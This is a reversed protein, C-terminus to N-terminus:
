TFDIRWDPKNNKQGDKFYRGYRPKVRSEKIPNDRVIVGGKFYADKTYQKPIRPIIANLIRKCEIESKANITVKSNDNLTYIGEYNGKVYSPLSIKDSATGDWHPVSIPYMASKYKKQGKDDVGNEEACQIILQPKGGENRIQWSLPIASVLDLKSIADDIMSKIKRYDIEPCCMKEKPPSPPSEPQPQPKNLLCDKADPNSVDIDWVYTFGTKSIVDNLVGAIADKSTLGLVSITLTGATYFPFIYHGNPHYGNGLLYYTKYSSFQSIETISSTGTGGGSQIWSKFGDDDPPLGYKSAVLQYVAMPSIVEYSQRYGNLVPDLYEGTIRYAGAIRFTISGCPSLELERLQRTLDKLVPKPKSIKPEIIPKDKDKIEPLKFEPIKVKFDPLQPLKPIKIQPIEFTPPNDKLDRVADRAREISDKTFDAINRGIEYAANEVSDRPFLLNSNDSYQGTFGDYAGVIAYGAAYALQAIAEDQANQQGRTLQAARLANASGVSAGSPKGQYWPKPSYPQATEQIQQQIGPTNHPTAHNDSPRAVPAPTMIIDLPKRVPAVEQIPPLISLVKQTNADKVSILPEAYQTTAM